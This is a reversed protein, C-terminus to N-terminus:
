FHFKANKFQYFDMNKLMKFDLEAMTTKPWLDLKFYESNEIMMEIINMSM